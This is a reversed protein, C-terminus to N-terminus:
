RQTILVTCISIGNYMYKVPEHQCPCSLHVCSEMEHLFGDLKYKTTDLM